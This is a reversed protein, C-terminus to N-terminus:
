TSLPTVVGARAMMRKPSTSGRCAMRSRAGRQDDPRSCAALWRDVLVVGDDGKGDDLELLHAAPRQAVEVQHEMGALPHGHHRRGAAALSGQGLHQDTDALGIPAADPARAPVDGDGPALPTRLPRRRREAHGPQRGGWSREAAEGHVLVHQDRGHGGATAPADALGMRAPRQLPGPQGPPGIGQGAPEIGTAQGPEVRGAGDGGGRSRTTTSGPAVTSAAVNATSSSTRSSATWCPAASTQSSRASRTGWRTSRSTTRPCPRIRASAAGSSIEPLPIRPPQRGGARRRGGSGIPRGSVAARGQPSGSALRRAPRRRTRRLGRRGDGAPQAWSRTRSRLTAPAVM